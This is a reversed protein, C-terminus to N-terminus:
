SYSFYLHLNYYVIISVKLLLTTPEAQFVCGILVNQKDVIQVEPDSETPAPSKSYVQAHKRHSENSHYLRLSGCTVV